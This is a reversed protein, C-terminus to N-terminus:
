FTCLFYIDILSATKIFFGVDTGVNGRSIDKCIEALLVNKGEMPRLNASVLAMRSFTIVTM